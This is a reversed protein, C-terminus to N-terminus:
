DNDVETLTVLVSWGIVKIKGDSIEFEADIDYMRFLNMLSILGSSLLEETASDIVENTEIDIVKVEFKSMNIVTTTLPINLAKAEQVVKQNAFILVAFEASTSSVQPKSKTGM